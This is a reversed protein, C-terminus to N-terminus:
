PPDIILMAKDVDSSVVLDDDESRAVVVSTADDRFGTANPNVRLALRWAIAILGIAQLDHCTM